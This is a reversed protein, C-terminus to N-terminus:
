LGSCSRKPHKSSWTSPEAKSSNRMFINYLTKLKFNGLFTSNFTIIKFSNSLFINHFTRIKFSNGLLTSHLNRIELSNDLFTSLLTKIKLSNGLFTNYWTGKRRTSLNRFAVLKKSGKRLLIKSLTFLRTFFVFLNSWKPFSAVASFFKFPLTTLFSKFTLVLFKSISKNWYNHSTLIAYIRKKNHIDLWKSKNSWKDKRLWIFKLNITILFLKLVNSSSM